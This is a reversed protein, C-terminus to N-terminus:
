KLEAIKEPSGRVLYVMYGLGNGIGVGIYHPIAFFGEFIHGFVTGYQKTCAQGIYSMRWWHRSSKGESGDHYVETGTIYVCQLHDWPTCKNVNRVGREYQKASVSDKLTELPSQASTQASILFLVVFLIRMQGLYM